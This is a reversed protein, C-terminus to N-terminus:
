SVILGVGMGLIVCEVVAVMGIGTREARNSSSTMTPSQSTSATTSSGLTTTATAGAGTASTTSMMTTSTLTGTSSKTSASNGRASTTDNDADSSPSAKKTTVTTDETKARTTSEDGRDNPSTPGTSVPPPGSRVSPTGTAITPAGNRPPPPATNVFPTNGTTSCYTPRQVGVLDCNDDQEARKDKANGPEKAVPHLLSSHISSLFRSTSSSLSHLQPRDPEILLPSPNAFICTALLLLCLLTLKRLLYM